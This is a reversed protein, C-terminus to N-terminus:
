EGLRRDRAETGLDLSDSVAAGDRRHRLGGAAEAAPFLELGPQGAEGIGLDFGQESAEIGV